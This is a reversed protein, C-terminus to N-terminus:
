AATHHRWHDVAFGVAAGIAAGLVAGLITTAGPVVDGLAVGIGAGIAMGSATTPGGLRRGGDRADGGRLTSWSLATM